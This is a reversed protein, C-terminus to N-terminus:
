NVEKISIEVVNRSLLRSNSDITYSMKLTKEPACLKNEVKEGFISIALDGQPISYLCTNRKGKTIVLRSQIGGSRQMVVSDDEKVHIVTKVDKVGMMESDDYSIFHSGNKFGYKGTTTLEITDSGDGMEQIGKINILVDKM